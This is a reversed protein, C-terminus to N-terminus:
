AELAYTLVGAVTKADNVHLAVCAATAEVLNRWLALEVDLHVLLHNDAFVASADHYVRLKGTYLGSDCLCLVLGLTLAGHALSLSGLLFLGRLAWACSM